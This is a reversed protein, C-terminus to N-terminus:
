NSAQPPYLPSPPCPLVPGVAPCVPPVCFGYTPVMLQVVATTQLLLCITLTCNIDGNPLNVCSCAGSLINCSPTTGNPNYLTVIQTVYATESLTVGSSCSVSYNIGVVFTIDNYDPTVTPTIAGVTCTSSSLDISCGVVSCTTGVAVLTQSTTLTQSCSDYVKDVVICDIETPPPVEGATIPGTTVSAM